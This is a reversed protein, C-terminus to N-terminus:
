FPHAVVYSSYYSLPLLGLSMVLHFGLLFLVIRLWLPLPAAALAFWATEWAGTLYLLLPTGISVLTGVVFLRRRESGLRVAAAAREDPCIVAETDPAGPSDQVLTSM